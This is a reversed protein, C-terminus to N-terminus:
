FVFRSPVVCRGKYAYNSYKGFGTTEIKVTEPPKRNEVFKYIIWLIFLVAMIIGITIGLNILLKIFYGLANKSGNVIGNGMNGLADFPTMVGWYYYKYPANFNDWNETCAPYNCDIPHPSICNDGKGPSACAIESCKTECNNSVDQKKQGPPDTCKCQGLNFNIYSNHPDFINYNKAGGTGWCKYPTSVPLENENCTILQCGSHNECYSILFLTFLTISSASLLLIILWKLSKKLGDRWTPKNGAEEINGKKIQDLLEKFQNDKFRKDADVTAHEDTFSDINDLQNNLSDFLEAWTTGDPIKFGAKKIKGNIDNISKDMVKLMSKGKINAYEKIASSTDDDSFLSKFDAEPNGNESLSKKLNKYGDQMSLETHFKEMWDVAHQAKLPDNKFVKRIDNKQLELIQKVNKLISQMAKELNATKDTEFIKRIEESAANKNKQEESPDVGAHDENGRDGENPDYPRETDPM